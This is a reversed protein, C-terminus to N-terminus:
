RTVECASKSEFAALAEDIDGHWGDSKGAFDAGFSGFVNCLGEEKPNMM